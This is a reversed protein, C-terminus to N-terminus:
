PNPKFEDERARPPVPTTAEPSVLPGSWRHARSARAATQRRTRAESALREQYFAREKLSRRFLVVLVVGLFLLLLSFLLPAIEM